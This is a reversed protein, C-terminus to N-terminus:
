CSCLVISIFSLSMAVIVWQFVARLNVVFIPTRLVGLGIARKVVTPGETTPRGPVACIGNKRALPYRKDNRMVPATM